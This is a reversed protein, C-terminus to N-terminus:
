VFGVATAHRHGCIVSTLVRVFAHMTTCVVKKLFVFLLTFFIFLREYSHYSIYM